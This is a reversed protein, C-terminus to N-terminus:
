PCYQAGHCGLYGFPTGQKGNPCPFSGGSAHQCCQAYTASNTTHTNDDLCFYYCYTYCGAQSFASPPSALAAVLVLILGATRFATKM